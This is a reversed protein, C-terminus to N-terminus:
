RNLRRLDNPLIADIEDDSFTLDERLKLAEQALRYAKNTTSPSGSYIDHLENSLKDREVIFDELPSRHMLLETILSVYRERILWINNAAQKHKQAIAGLDNEKAYINLALLATSIAAGILGLLKASDFIAYIFGCTTIASLVIQWLRISALKNHLIDACKEHTKHSYAARGYCERLQGELIKRTDPTDEVQFTQEM